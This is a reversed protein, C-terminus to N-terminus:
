DMGHLIEEASFSLAAPLVSRLLSGLKVADHGALATMLDDRMPRACLARFLEADTDSGLGLALVRPRLAELLFVLRSYGAGLWSELDEKLARALAPSGGGTSLALVLPGDQVHAPVLFSGRADADLPGAVNCLIGEARCLRAIASNVEASPTAAFVLTAGDLDEPRFVRSECTLPAHDLGQLANRFSTEDLGPDLVLLSAPRCELLSAAKRRGVRGAGILVCRSDTLDLFLPYYRMSLM